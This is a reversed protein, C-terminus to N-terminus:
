DWKFTKLYRDILEDYAKRVMNLTENQTDYESLGQIQKIPLVKPSTGSLFAAEYDSLENISIAKEIVEFGIKECVRFIKKRTIGKLVSDGPATFITQGKIFFINSRSGETAKGDSTLLLEYVKYKEMLNAVESKFSNRMIKANPNERQYDFIHLEIGDLYMKESPYSHPIFWAAFWFAAETSRPGGLLKINGIEVKNSEVLVKLSNRLQKEDLPFKINKIRFTEYFREIHDELFLIKGDIVRVVEYIYGQGAYKEPIFECTSKLDENVVFHLHLCQDM